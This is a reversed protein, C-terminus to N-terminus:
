SKLQPKTMKEIDATSKKIDKAEFFPMAASIAKQKVPIGNDELIDTIKEFFQAIENQPMKGLRRVIANSFLDAIDEPKSLSNRVKSEKVQKDCLLEKEKESYRSNLIEQISKAVYDYKGYVMDHHSKVVNEIRTLNDQYNTFDPHNSKTQFSQGKAAFYDRATLTDIIRVYDKNTSSTDIQKAIGFEKLLKQKEELDVNLAITNSEPHYLGNLISNFMFKDLIVAASHLDTGKMREFVPKITASFLIWKNEQESIKAFRKQQEEASINSCFVDVIENAIDNYTKDTM